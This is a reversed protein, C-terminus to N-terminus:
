NMNQKQKFPSNNESAMRNYFVKDLYKPLIRQVLISLKGETTLIINRRKYKIGKYIANAVEEPTMMKNEKRPSEGQPSGDALLASKRVNSATFGPAVILVHIGDKLYENRLTELFGNMAFKSASYGTRGPLGHFGAVSSVGILSGKRKLLYPLAFKTCYVTGFFNVEMLKRIVALDVDKFLARMSIGANNILIDIGGFQKVAQDILNKCDDIQSVDTKIGLVEKGEQKLEQEVEQLKEINRAGMVVRAGKNAYEKACALGIGSSAGTIVIVKKDLSFKNPM